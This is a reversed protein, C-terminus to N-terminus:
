KHTILSELKNKCLDFITLLAQHGAEAIVEARTGSLRLCHASSGEATACGIWVTGVPIETSGGGPGAVGTTSIGIDAGLLRRVGEAMALAVPESVATHREIDTSSVGLLKTKIDNQYAVVAGRFFASAGAQHTLAAAVSGGTCSEATAVTLGSSALLRTLESLFSTDM